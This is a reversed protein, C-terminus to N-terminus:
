LKKFVVKNKTELQEIHADTVLYKKCKYTLIPINRLNDIRIFVGKLELNDAIDIFSLNNDKNQYNEILLSNENVQIKIM